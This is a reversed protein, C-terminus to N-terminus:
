CEIKQILLFMSEFNAMIIIIIYIAFLNSVTTPKGPQM